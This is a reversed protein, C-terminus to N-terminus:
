QEHREAAGGGWGFEILTITRNAVAIGAIAAAM